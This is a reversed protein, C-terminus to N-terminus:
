SWCGAAPVCWCWSVSAPCCWRGLAGKGAQQLAEALVSYPHQAAPRRAGPVSQRGSFFTPDVEQVPVFQELVLAKDRAPRLQELEQARRRYTPPPRVRLWPRHGRGPRCRAPSLAQPVRHAPPLRCPPLPLPFCSRQQQRRQLSQCARRGSQHPPTGVLQAPRPAPGLATAPPPSPLSPPQSSAPIM